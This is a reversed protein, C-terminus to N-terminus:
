VRKASAGRKVIKAGFVAAIDEDDTQALDIAGGETARGARSGRDEGHREDREDARDRAFRMYAFYEGIGISALAERPTRHLGSALEM